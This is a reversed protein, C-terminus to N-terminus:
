FHWKETGFNVVFVVSLKMFVGLFMVTDSIDSSSSTDVPEKTAMLLLFVLLIGGLVMIV